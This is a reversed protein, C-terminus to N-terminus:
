GWVGMVGGWFRLRSIMQQVDVRALEIEDIGARKRQERM